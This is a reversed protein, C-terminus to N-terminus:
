HAFILELPTKGFNKCGLRPDHEHSFTGSYCLHPHSAGAGSCGARVAGDELVGSQGPSFAGNMGQAVDWPSFCRAPVQLLAPPSPESASLVRRPVADRRGEQSANLLRRRECSGAVNCGRRLRCWRARARTGAGRSRGNEPVHPEAEGGAGETGPGSARGPARPAAEKAVRRRACSVWGKEWGPSTESGQWSGHSSKLRTGSSIPRERDQRPQKAKLLWLGRFAAAAPEIGM